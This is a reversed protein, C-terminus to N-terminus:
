ILDVVTKNAGLLQQIAWIKNRRAEDIFPNDEDVKATNTSDYNRYKENIKASVGNAVASFYLVETYPKGNVEYKSLQNLHSLDDTILDKLLHNVDYIEELVLQELRANTVSGDIRVFERIQQIDVSPFFPHHEIISNPRKGQTANAILSM